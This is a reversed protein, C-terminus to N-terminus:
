WGSNRRCYNTVTPHQRLDPPGDPKVRLDGNLWFVDGVQREVVGGEVNANALV